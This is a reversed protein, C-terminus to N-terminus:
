DPTRGTARAIREARQQVSVAVSDRLGRLVYASIVASLLAAALLPVLVPVGDTLLVAGALVVAYCAAFIGLRAATYLVFEKM